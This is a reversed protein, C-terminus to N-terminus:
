GDRGTGFPFSIVDCDPWVRKRGAAEDQFMMCSADGSTDFASLPLTTVSVGPAGYGNALPVDSLRALMVARSGGGAIQSSSTFM